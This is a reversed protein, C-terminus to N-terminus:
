SLYVDMSGSRLGELDLTLYVFGLDHLQQVIQERQELFRPFDALPLELRVVDGHLRLRMAAFGQRHLYSEGDEIRQLVEPRLQTGYPLRTAMCPSSPREAVSIGLERAMARIEAKTIGLEALPSLIGLERVARIGPRYVHLDDENTGEIVARIGRAQAWDKLTQFLYRKCIYCRDTPNNQLLPNSLEDMTLQVLPAGCEEAVQKAIALDAKPHLSGLFTVAYVTTGNKQASQCLLKLLLSSDIGGSFALACDAQTYEDLRATLAKLKAEM